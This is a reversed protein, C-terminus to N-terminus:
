ATHLPLFKDLLPVCARQLPAIFFGLKPCLEHSVFLPDSGVYFTRWQYVSGWLRLTFLVILRRLSDVFM